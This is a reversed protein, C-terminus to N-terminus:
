DSLRRDLSSKNADDLVLSLLIATLVVLSTAQFHCFLYSLPMYCVQLVLSCYQDVQLYKIDERSCNLLGSLLYKFVDPFGQHPIQSCNENLHFMKLNMRKALAKSSKSGHLEASDLFVGKCLCLLRRLVHSGYCNCLMDLPNDVIVQVFSFIQGDCDLDIVIKM